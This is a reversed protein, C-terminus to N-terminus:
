LQFCCQCAFRVPDCLEIEEEVVEDNEGSDELIYLLRNAAQIMHRRDPIVYFEDRVQDTHGLHRSVSATGSMNLVNETEILSRMAISTLGEIGGAKGISQLFRIFDLLRYTSWFFSNLCLFPVFGTLFIIVLTM